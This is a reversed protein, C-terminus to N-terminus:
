TKLNQPWSEPPGLPNQSWDFSRMRRAMESDGPFIQALDVDVV